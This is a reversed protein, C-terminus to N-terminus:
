NKRLRSRCYMIYVRCFARKIHWIRRTYLYFIEGVNNIAKEPNPFLMYIYVFARTIRIIYRYLLDHSCSYLSIHRATYYICVFYIEVITWYIYAKKDIKWPRILFSIMLHMARICKHPARSIERERAAVKAGARSVRWSYTHSYKKKALRGRGRRIPTRTFNRSSGRFESSSRGSSAIYIYIYKYSSSRWKQPCLQQEGTLTYIYIRAAAIMYLYLSCLGIPCYHITSRRSKGLLVYWERASVCVSFIIFVQRQMTLGRGRSITCRRM